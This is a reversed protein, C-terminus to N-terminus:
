IQNVTKQQASIKSTRQKFLHWSLDAISTGNQRRWHGGATFVASIHFERTRKGTSGIQILFSSRLKNQDPHVPYCECNIEDNEHQPM